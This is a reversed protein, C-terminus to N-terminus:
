TIIVEVAGEGGGFHSHSDFSANVNFTQLIGYLNVVLPFLAFLLLGGLLAGGVQAMFGLEEGDGMMEGMAEQISAIVDECMEQLMERAEDMAEGALEYFVDLAEDLAPEFYPQPGMNWTGYEVYQAYEADAMCECFFGDTQADITSRLYGTDVPVLDTAVDLFTKCFAECADSYNVEVELFEGMISQSLEARYGLEEPTFSAYLGM